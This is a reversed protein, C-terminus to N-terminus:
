VAISELGSSNDLRGLMIKKFFLIQNFKTDKFILYVLSFLGSENPKTSDM